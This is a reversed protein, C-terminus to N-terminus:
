ARVLVTIVFNTLDFSIIRMVKMLENSWGYDTDTLDITDGIQVRAGYLWVKTEFFVMPNEHIDIVWGAGGLASAQDDHWIYVNAEAISSLGYDASTSGSVPETATWLGLVGTPDPIGKPDYGYAVNVFNVLEEVNTHPRNGEVDSGDVSSLIQARTWTDDSGGADNVAHTFGIKGENTIFAWSSTLDLVLQCASRYTHSKPIRAAIDDMNEGALKTKWDGWLKYDLYKNDQSLESDLGGETVLIGWIIDAANQATYELVDRSNGIEENLFKTLKHVIYISCTMNMDSYEVHDVEGTFISIWESLGTFGLEIIALKTHNTLDSLFINWSQDANSVTVVAEPTGLLEDFSIDSINMIPYIAMLYIDTTDAHTDAVTSGYARTVEIQNAGYSANVILMLEDDTLIVDNDSFVSNDVVDIIQESSDLAENLNTTSDTQFRFIIEPTEIQTQSRTIWGASLADGASNRAIPM